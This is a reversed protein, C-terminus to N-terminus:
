GGILFNTGFWLMPGVPPLGDRGMPSNTAAAERPEHEDNRHWRALRPMASAALFWGLGSPFFVSYPQHQGQTSRRAAGQATWQHLRADASRSTGLHLRAAIAKISITTEKRLPAAIAFGPCGTLALSGVNIVLVTKM